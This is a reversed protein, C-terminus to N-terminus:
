MRVAATAVAQATGCGQCSQPIKGRALENAMARRRQAIAKIPTGVKGLAFRDSDKIFCCATIRGDHGLFLGNELWPCAAHGRVSGYLLEYFGPQMGRERMARMLDESFVIRQNLQRAQEPGPIQGLMERSYFRMYQPMRQLSQITMGGDLGHKRYFPLVTDIADTVTDRLVTVALGVVPLHLGRQRRQRMFAEIGREVREFKGGRIARFREADASEMSVNVRTLGCDLLREIIEDTFLSGNTITSVGVHPFRQRLLSIFDFFGKHLFPEGEGQLEVHELGEIDDLLCNLHNTTLDGQPLHRGACFGCTYNCRTTPEIQLFPILMSLPRSEDTGTM